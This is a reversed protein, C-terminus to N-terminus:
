KDKFFELLKTKFDSLSFPKAIFDDAKLKAAQEKLDPDNYASVVWLCLDPYKEKSEQLVKMGSIDQLGLDLLMLDPRNTNLYEIAKLGETLTVLNYGWKEIRPGIFDLFEQEDDILLITKM